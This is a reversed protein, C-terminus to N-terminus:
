ETEKRESLEEATRVKEKSTLERARIILHNTYLQWHLLVLIRSRIDDLHHM